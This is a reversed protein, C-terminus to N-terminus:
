SESGTLICLLTAPWYILEKPASLHNNYLDQMQMLDPCMFRSRM